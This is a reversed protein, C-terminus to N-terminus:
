RRDELTLLLILPFILGFVATFLIERSYGKGKALLSCGWLYLLLGPVALILVAPHCDAENLSGTLVFYVAPGLLVLSVPLVVACKKRYRAHM